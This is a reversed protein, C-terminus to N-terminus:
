KDGCCKNKCSDGSVYFGGGKFHVVPSSFMKNAMKGCKECEYEDVGAKVLATTIHGCECKFDFSPM